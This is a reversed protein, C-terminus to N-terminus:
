LELQIRLNQSSNPQFNGVSGSITSSVTKSRESLDLNVLKKPEPTPLPSPKPTQTPTKKPPYNYNGGVPKFDEAVPMSRIAPLVALPDISAGDRYVELHTHPGSTNGTMGIEGIYNDELVEQGKQAYIRGMHAYTSKYGNGHDITVTLGLGWFNYGTDLVIGRAIPKIPTGLGSAIDIGPHYASYYTSIYGPHPPQFTFPLSSGVVKPAQETQARVISKQLPPIGFVPQYSLFFFLFFVGFM